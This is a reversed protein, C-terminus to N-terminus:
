FWPNHVPKHLTPTILTILTTPASPTYETCCRCRVKIIHPMSVILQKRIRWFPDSFARKLNATLLTCLAPVNEAIRAIQSFLRLRVTSEEDTSMRVALESMVTGCDASINKVAIEVVMTAVAKRVTM